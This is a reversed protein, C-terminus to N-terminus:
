QLFVCVCVACPLACFGGSHNGHPHGVRGNPVRGARNCGGVGSSLLRVLTGFHSPLLSILYGSWNALPGGRRQSPNKPRRLAHAASHRGFFADRTRFPPLDPDFPKSLFPEAKKQDPGPRDEGRNYVKDWVTRTQPRDLPSCRFPFSNEWVSVSCCQAPSPRASAWRECHSTINM